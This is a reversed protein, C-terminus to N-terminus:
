TNGVSWKWHLEQEIQLQDLAYVQYLYPVACCLVACCNEGPCAIVTPVGGVVFPSVGCAFDAYM